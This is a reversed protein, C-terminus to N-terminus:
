FRGHISAGEPGIAVSPSERTDRGLMWWLLGGLASAVGVGVAVNGVTAWTPARQATALSDSTPCHATDGDVRCPALAANRLGFFVVGTAIALGGGAMLAIQGTRLTPGTGRPAPGHAPPGVLGAPDPQRRTAAATARGLIAECQSRMTVADVEAPGGVTPDGAERVCATAETRATVMDGLQLAEFAIAWRLAPTAELREAARLLDLARPHDGDAQAARARDLLGQRVPDTSQARASGAAVVMSAVVFALALGSPGPPHGGM